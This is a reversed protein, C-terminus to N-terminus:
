NQKGRSTHFWELGVLLFSIQLLFVDLSQLIQTILKLITGIYKRLNIKANLWLEYPKKVIKM